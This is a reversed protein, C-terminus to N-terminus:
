NLFFFEELLVAAELSSFYTQRYSSIVKVKRRHLKTKSNVSGKIKAPIVINLYNM